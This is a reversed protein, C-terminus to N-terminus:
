TQASSLQPCEEDENSDRQLLQPAARPSLQTQPAYQSEFAFFRAGTCKSASSFSKQRSNIRISHHHTFVRKIQRLDISLGIM